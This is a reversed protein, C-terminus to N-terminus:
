SHEKSQVLQVNCVIEVDEGVVLGGAEMAADFKMNYDFRNIEGTIKFGAKTNGYPDKIVGGQKVELEVTKTVDRITLDGKLVYEKGEVHKLTGNTFKIQPYKEANFFDDSKLHNDRKENDTDVSAVDVTFEIKSGDFGDAGSQVKGDFSGFNGTVESIVLHEVNFTINSHAKDFSWNTQASAVMAPLM